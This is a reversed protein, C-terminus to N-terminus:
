PIYRAARRWRDMAMNAVTGNSREIMGATASNWVDTLTYYRISLYLHHLKKSFASLHDNHTWLTQSREAGTLMNGTGGKSIAENLLTFISILETATEM